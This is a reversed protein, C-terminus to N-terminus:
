PRTTQWASGSFIVSTSISGVAMESFRTYHSSAYHTYIALFKKVCRQCVISSPTGSMIAVPVRHSNKIRSLLIHGDDVKGGDLTMDLIIADCAYEELNRSAEEVSTAVRISVFPENVDKQDNYVAASDECAQIDSETDEILLIKMTNEANNSGIMDEDEKM